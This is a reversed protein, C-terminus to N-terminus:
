GSGRLLIIGVVVLGLLSTSSLQKLVGFENSPKMMTSIEQHASRNAAAKLSDSV